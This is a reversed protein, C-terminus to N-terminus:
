SLNVHTGSQRAAMRSTQQRHGVFGVATKYTMTWCHRTALM